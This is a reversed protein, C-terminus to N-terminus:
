SIAGHGFAGSIVGYAIGGCVLSTWKDERKAMLGMALVFVGTIIYLAALSVRRNAFRSKLLIIMAPGALAGLMGLILNNTLVDPTPSFMIGYYVMSAATWAAALKALVLRVKPYRFVNKTAINLREQVQKEKILIQDVLEDDYDYGSEKCFLKLAAKGEKVM